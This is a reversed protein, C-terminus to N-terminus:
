LVPNGRARTATPHEIHEAEIMLSLVKIAGLDGQLWLGKVFRKLCAGLSMSLKHRLECRAPSINTHTIEKDAKKIKQPPTSIPSRRPSM